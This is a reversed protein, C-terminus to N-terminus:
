IEEFRANQLLTEVIKAYSIGVCAGIKPILSTATMGPHTNIELFRYENETAIFDVRAISSAGIAKYIKLADTHLKERMTESIEAPAEYITAKSNYKANYSYFEEAPIIKCTGIVQDNLIGVAIEKGSFFHEITFLNGDHFDQVEQLQSQTLKEGKELVFTAVSSGGCVPKIVSKTSIEYNGALIEEKLISQNENTAIGCAKAYTNTLVKNMGIQSAMVGSHTYPIKLANLITQIYGDEGYKGHMANFIIEVNQTKIDEVFNHTFPIECFNLGLEQVAQVIGNKTAQAIKAEATNEQFVIGVKLNQLNNM